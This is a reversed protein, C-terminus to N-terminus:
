AYRIAVRAAFADQGDVLLPGETARAPGWLQGAPVVLSLDHLAVKAGFFKTVHRIDVLAQPAPPLATANM